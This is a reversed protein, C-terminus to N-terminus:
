YTFKRRCFYLFLLDGLITNKFDDEDPLPYAFKLIGLFPHAWCSFAFGLSM